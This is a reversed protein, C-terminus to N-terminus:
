KFLANNLADSCENTIFLDVLFKILSPILILLVLCILRIKLHNLFKKNEDEKFSTIMKIGDFVTLLIILVPGGIRILNVVLEIYQYIGDKNEMDYLLTCLENKDTIEIGIGEFMDTLYNELSEYIRNDVNENQQDIENKIDEKSTNQCNTTIEHEASARRSKYCENYATGNGGSMQTCDKEIQEIIESGNESWKMIECAKTKSYEELDDKFANQCISEVESEIGAMRSNYCAEYATSNGGSMQTCDREINEKQRPLTDKKCDELVRKGGDTSYEEAKLLDGKKQLDDPLQNAWKLLYELAKIYFVNYESAVNSNVDVKNFGYKKFWKYGDNIGVTLYPGIEKPPADDAIYTKFHSILSDSHTEKLVNLQESINSDSDAISKAIANVINERDEAIIKNVDASSAEDNNYLIESIHDLTDKLGYKLYDQVIDVAKKSNDRIETFAMNYYVNNMGTKGAIYEKSVQDFFILNMNDEYVNEHKIVEKDLKDIDDDLYIFDDIIFNTYRKTVSGMGGADPISELNGPKLSVINPCVDKRSVIDKGEPVKIGVERTEPGNAGTIDNFWSLIPGEGWWTKWEVKYNQYNTITISSKSLDDLDLVFTLESVFQTPSVKGILKDELFVLKDQFPSYDEGINGITYQSYISRSYQRYRAYISEMNLPYGGELTYECIKVEAKGSGIFCFFSIAFIIFTLLHKKKM